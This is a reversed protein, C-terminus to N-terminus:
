ILAGFLAQVRQQFAAPRFPRQLVQARPLRASPPEDGNRQPPMIVLKPLAAWRVDDTLLARYRNSSGILAGSGIVVGSFILEADLDVLDEIGNVPTTAFAPLYQRLLLRYVNQALPSAEVILMRM